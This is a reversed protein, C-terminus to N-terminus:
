EVYIAVCFETAVVVHGFNTTGERDIHNSLRAATGICDLSALVEPPYSDLNLGPENGARRIAALRWSLRRAAPKRVGERISPFSMDSCVTWLISVAPEVNTFM